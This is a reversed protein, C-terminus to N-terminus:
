CPRANSEAVSSVHRIKQMNDWKLGPVSEIPGKTVVVSRQICQHEIPQVARYFRTFGRGYEQVTKAVKVASLKFIWDACRRQHENLISEDPHGFAFRGCLQSKYDMTTIRVHSDALLINSSDGVKCNIWQLNNIQPWHLLILRLWRHCLGLEGVGLQSHSDEWDLEAEYIDGIAIQAKSIRRLNTKLPAQLLGQPKWCLLGLSFINCDYLLSIGEAYLRKCVSLVEPSLGYEMEKLGWSGKSKSKIELNIIESRVLCHELIMVLIETPLNLLGPKSSDPQSISSSGLVAKPKTAM